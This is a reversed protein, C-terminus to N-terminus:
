GNEGGACRNWATRPQESATITYNARDSFGSPNDANCLIRMHIDDPHITRGTPSKVTVLTPRDM